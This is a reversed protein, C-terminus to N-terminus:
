NKDVSMHDMVWDFDALAAAPSSPIPIPLNAANPLPPRITNPQLWRHLSSHGDAFSFATAGNHYSAPLDTWQASHYSGGSGGGNEPSKDLFYGDDISDPHEDLFVFIDTPQPIQTTKFFQTYGPNNVNFGNATFDGADGVMANMSYSRVRATWGAARQVSSLAADSPCRYVSTNGSVFRGLSAGTLTALNTNDSSLDWTMVNNVWNLGTRFSSGAMGLNYPLREDNDGAYMQWALGLQRTNNLCIIARARERARSLAPLVLAALVAIIAIVTLLEILTFGTAGTKCSAPPKKSFHSLNMAKSFHRNWPL